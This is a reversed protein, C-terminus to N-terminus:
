AVVHFLLTQYHVKKGRNSYVQSFPYSGVGIGEFLIIDSNESFIAGEESGETYALPSGESELISVYFSLTENAHMVVPEDFCDFLTPNGTGRGQISQVSVVSWGVRLGKEDKAYLGNRSLVIVPVDGTLVTNIALSSIALSQRAQVAFAAGYARKRGSYTTTLSDETHFCKPTAPEGIFLASTESEKFGGSRGYKLEAGEVTLRYFGPDFLGQM